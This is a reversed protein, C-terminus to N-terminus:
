AWRRNKKVFYSVSFSIIAILAVVLVRYDYVKDMWEAMKAFVVDVEEKFIWAMLAVMIVFMTSCSILVSIKASFIIDIPLRIMIVCMGIIWCYAVIKLEEWGCNVDGAKYVLPLLIAVWICMITNIVFAIVYRSAVEKFANVPSAYLVKYWEAKEDKEISSFSTMAVSVSGICFSYIIGKFFMDYIDSLEKISQFNGVNMGLIFIIAFAEAAVISLIGFLINKRVLLFDKYLLGLM